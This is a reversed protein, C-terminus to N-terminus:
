NPGTSPSPLPKLTMTIKSGPLFPNSGFFNIYSIDISIDISFDGTETSALSGDPKGSKVRKSSLVSASFFTTATQSNSVFASSNVQQASPLSCLPFLLGHITTM